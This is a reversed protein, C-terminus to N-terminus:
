SEMLSLENRKSKSLSPNSNQKLSLKSPTGNYSLKITKLKKNSLTIPLIPKNFHQKNM